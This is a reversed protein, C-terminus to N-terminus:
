LLSDGYNGYSCRLQLRPLNARKTFQWRLGAVTIGGGYDRVTIAHGYDWRWASPPRSPSSWWRRPSRGSSRSTWGPAPTQAPTLEARNLPNLLSDDYSGSTLRRTLL